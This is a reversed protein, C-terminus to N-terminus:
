YLYEFLQLYWSDRKTTFLFDKLDKDANAYNDFVGKDYHIQITTKVARQILIGEVSQKNYKLEFENYDKKLSSSHSNLKLLKEDLFGKNLVNGDDVARFNTTKKM